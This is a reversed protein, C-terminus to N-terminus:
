IAKKTKSLKKDIWLQLKFENSRMGFDGNVEAEFYRFVIDQYIKVGKYTSHLKMRYQIPKAIM